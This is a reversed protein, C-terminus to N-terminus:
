IPADLYTAGAGGGTYAPGLVPTIASDRQVANGYAQSSQPPLSGPPASLRHPHAVGLFDADGIKEVCLTIICVCSYIDM